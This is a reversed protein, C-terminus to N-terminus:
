TVTKFAAQYCAYTMTATNRWTYKRARELGSAALQHRQDPRCSLGVIAEAWSESETPSLLVGAGEALEPLAGERAAIVPCGCAMAELVPLGFGEYRCPFCFMEAHRYLTPLWSDPVNSLISIRPRIGLRDVRARIGRDYRGRPGVLVLPPVGPHKRVAAAYADLLMAVNKRRQRRGVYLIYRQPTGLQRRPHADHPQRQATFRKSVGLPVVLVRGSAAPYFHTLARATWESPVLITAATRAALATTIRLRASLTHGTLWPAFRFSLDHISIVIPCPSTVPGAYQFHAVDVGDRRLRRPFEWVLRGIASASRIIEISAQGLGHGGRSASSNVYAHLRLPLRLEAFGELLGSVYRENGGAGSGLTHADLAVRLDM